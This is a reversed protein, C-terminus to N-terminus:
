FHPKLFIELALFRKESLCASFMWMKFNYVVM